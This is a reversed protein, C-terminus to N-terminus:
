KKLESLARNVRINIIIFMIMLVSLIAGLIWWVRIGNLLFSEESIQEYSLFYKKSSIDECSYGNVYIDYIPISWDFDYFLFDRGISVDCETHNSNGNGIFGVKITVEPIAMNPTVNRCKSTYDEVFGKLYTLNQIKEGSYDYIDESLSNLESENYSLINGEKLHSIIFYYSNECIERDLAEGYVGFSLFVLLMLVTLGIAEKKKEM